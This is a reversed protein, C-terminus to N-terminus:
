KDYKYFIFIIFMYIYINNTNRNIYYNYNLIHSVGLMINKIVDITNKTYGINYINNFIIIFSDFSFM